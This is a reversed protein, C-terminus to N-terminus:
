MLTEWYETTFKDQDMTNFHDTFAKAHKTIPKIFTDDIYRYCWLPCSSADAPSVAKEEVDEMYVDCVIPSVPSRM